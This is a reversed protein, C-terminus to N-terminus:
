TVADDNVEVFNILVNKNKWDKCTLSWAIKGEEIFQHFLVTM